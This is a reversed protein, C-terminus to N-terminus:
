VNNESIAYVCKYHAFKNEAHFSSAQYEASILSAKWNVSGREGYEDSRDWWKGAVETLLCADGEAKVYITAEDTKINYEMLRGGKPLFSNDEWKCEIEDSLLNEFDEEVDPYPYKSWLRNESKM